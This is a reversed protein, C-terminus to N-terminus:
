DVCSQIVAFLANAEEGAPLDHGGAYSFFQSGHAKIDLFFRRASRKRSRKDAEGCGIVWRIKQYGDVAKQRLVDQIEPKDWPNNSFWKEELMMGFSEGEPNTWCGAALCIASKVLHPHRLSFRHAFQAGGSFGVLVVKGACHGTQRHHDLLAILEADAAPLLFQYPTKFTPFLFVSDPFTGRGVHTEVYARMSAGTADTGHVFVVPIASASIRFTFDINIM